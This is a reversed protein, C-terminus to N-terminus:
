QRAKGTKALAIVATGRRTLHPDRAQVGAPPEALHRVGGGTLVAPADQGLEERMRDILGDILAPYGHVMGAGIGEATSGGIVPAAGPALGAEVLATSRGLAEAAAAMGPFLAGGRLVGEADVLEITLATGLDAAIAPAGFRERAAVANAIRDPGMAEAPQYANVLEGTRGPGVAVVAAGSHAVAERLLSSVAPVVSTLGVAEPAESARARLRDAGAEVLARLDPAGTPIRVVAVVEGDAVMAVRTVTNGADIALVWAM